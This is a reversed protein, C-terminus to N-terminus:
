MQDYQELLDITDQLQDLADLLANTKAEYVDGKTGYIEDSHQELYLERSNIEDRISKKAEELKNILSQM